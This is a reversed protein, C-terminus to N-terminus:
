PPRTPHGIKRRCFRRSFTWRKFVRLFYCFRIVELLLHTNLINHWCKCLLAVDCLIKGIIDAHALIHLLVLVKAGNKIDAFNPNKSFVDQWWHDSKDDMASADDSITAQADVEEDLEDTERLKDNQNTHHSQKELLCAPHNCVPFLNQYAFFFNNNGTEKVYKQFADYLKIQTKSQRVHIVTQQIFKLDQLLVDVGARQVLPALKVALEELLRDGNAM